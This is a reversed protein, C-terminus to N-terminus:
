LYYFYASNLKYTHLRGVKPGRMVFGAKLLTQMGNTVTPTTLGLDEALQSLNLPQGTVPLLSTMKWLLLAAAQTLGPQKALNVIARDTLVIARPTPM